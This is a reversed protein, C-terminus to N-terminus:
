GLVPWERRLPRGGFLVGPWWDDVHRGPGDRAGLPERLVQSALRPAVIEPHGFLGAGATHHLPRSRRHCWYFYHKDGTTLKFYGSYQTVNDCIATAAPQSGEELVGGRAALGPAFALAAPALLLAAISM